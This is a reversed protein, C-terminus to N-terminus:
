GRPSEPGWEQTGSCRVATTMEGLLWPGETHRYRYWCVHASSQVQFPVEARQSQQPVNNITSREGSPALQAGVRARVETGWGRPRGSSRQWEAEWPRQVQKEEQSSHEEEQMAM